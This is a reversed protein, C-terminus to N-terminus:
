LRIQAYNKVTGRSRNRILLEHARSVVLFRNNKEFIAQIIRFLYDFPLFHAHFM